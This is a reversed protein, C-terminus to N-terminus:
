TVTLIYAADRHYLVPLGKDQVRINIGDPDWTEKRDVFLGWHRNLGFPAKKYEAVPQGEVSTAMMIFKGSPVFYKRTFVFDSGARYAYTTASTTLTGSETNVASITVNETVGTDVRVLTLTDGVAFDVTTDVYITTASAAVAATLSARVEYKEDYVVLNPIDLLSGLVKPNAGVIKNVNGSFLDGTGFASKQLLTQITPDQALYRLVTSNCIAVNVVSGNADSIVQKGDIIDGIIDRSTGENWKFNAGLTVKNASPIDYDVSIKTGSAELYEMTGAFMMQAFMWEKRRYCRNVLRSLERALRSQADMYTNETGERRLNNLFEEDFYMKEGWFACEASNNAVGLPFTKATPAGPPKFPAMGRTGVQSEWKITSSPSNSAPFMNQLMLEPPAMFKTVFGQLVELRLDPIESIGRPM